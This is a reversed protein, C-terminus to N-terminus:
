AKILEVCAWRDKESFGSFKLGVARGADEIMPIDEEYFGSLLMKGNDKLRNAYHAIDNLIINRNINAIFLDAAEVDKLASADGLIVLIEPHKNMVVNDVANAYAFEDIEIATVPKAGRMAALIALIGTGTGMDIVSKGELSMELLRNLILSTTAHHGTGFAMKPDIVIDYPTKPIDTHFSSHVVCKDGIIIPQFYNKEWEQNWDQGEILTDTFTIKCDFPFDEIANKLASKDWLKSQIYATLGDEEAVFSEFGIEGLVAALYDAADEGPFPNLTAKLEIYDNM